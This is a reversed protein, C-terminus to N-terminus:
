LVEKPQCQMHFEAEHGVWSPAVYAIIARLTSMTAEKSQWTINVENFEVDTIFKCLDLYGPVDELQLGKSDAIKELVYLTNDLPLKRLKNRHAINLKSCLRMAAYENKLLVPSEYTTGSEDVKVPPLLECCAEYAPSQGHERDYVCWGYVSSHSYTFRKNNM